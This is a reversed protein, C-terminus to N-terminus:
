SKSKAQGVGVRRYIEQQFYGQDWQYRIPSFLEISTTKSSYWMTRAIVFAAFFVVVFGAFFVVVVLPGVLISLTRAAIHHSVIGRLVFPDFGEVGWAHNVPQVRGTLGCPGSVWIRPDYLRTVHFAGFGYCAVGALFLHIGFIKPLDLSSKGTHEDYYIELDWYVWHWIAELFCLGLFVIHAEVM